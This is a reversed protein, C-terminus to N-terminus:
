GVYYDELKGDFDSNMQKYYEFAEEPTDFGFDDVWMMIPVLNDGFGYRIIKDGHKYFYMQLSNDNM